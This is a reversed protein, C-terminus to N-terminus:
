IKHRKPISPSKDPITEALRYYLGFKEFLEKYNETGKKFLNLPKLRFSNEIQLYEKKFSPNEWITAFINEVMSYNLSESKSYMRGFLNHLLTNNSSDEITFDLKPDDLLPLIAYFSSNNTIYKIFFHSVIHKNGSEMVDEYYIPSADAKDEILNINAGAESLLQYIEQYLEFQTLENFKPYLVHSYFFQILLEIPTKKHEYIRNQPIKDSKQPNIIRVNVDANYKIFNEMLEKNFEIVRKPDQMREQKFLTTYLDKILISYVGSLKNIFSKVEKKKPTYKFENFHEVTKEKLDYWFSQLIKRNRTLVPIEKEVFCCEILRHIPYVGHNNPQNINAQNKLANDFLISSHHLSAYHFLNNGENDQWNNPLYHLVKNHVKNRKLSWYLLKKLTKTNFINM